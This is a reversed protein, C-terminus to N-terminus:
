KLDITIPKKTKPPVFENAGKAPKDFTSGKWDSEKKKKTVIPLVKGSQTVYSGYRRYLLQKSIATRDADQPLSNIYLLVDDSSSPEEYKSDLNPTNTPRDQNKKHHTACGFLANCLILGM